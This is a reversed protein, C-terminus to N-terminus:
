WEFREDRERAERAEWEREREIAAKFSIVANAAAASIKPNADRALTDLLPLRSALISALSGSWGGPHFNQVYQNLVALPDPAERLVRIAASTWQISSTPEDEIESDNSSADKTQQWARMVKALQLFRAEPREHAWELLVDDPIKGLPCSGRERSGRFISRRGELARPGEEVLINLVSRPFIASLEVFIEGYDSSSIHHQVIGHLLRECIQNALADDAPSSLCKRVILALDHAERRRSNNFMVLALLTRAIDKEESEITKNDAVKSFLRMHFIDIAAEIGGDRKVIELLLTKLCSSSLGDCTRGWSLNRFHDIPVTEIKSAEILRACGAHDVGASIQMFIFLRHLSPNALAGDLFEDCLARNVTVLGSLFDSPFRIINDGNSPAIVTALILKWAERPKQSYRGITAAVISVRTSGSALMVQLHSEFVSLDSAIEKGIEECISDVKQRSKEYNNEDSIDIEAVDLAGWQAPLVYSAIRAELTNPQLRKELAELKEADIKRKSSEALSRAARAGAWGEPWGGDAAFRDALAILEDTLATGPALFRFQSAVMSRVSARLFNHEALDGALSFAERYWDLCEGSNKPHLGYDRKRTGFEFGYSSSFHNCELMADLGTLVLSERHIVESVAVNRLFDARQKATAHTGSLYLYFLSKFVNIAAETDNSKSEGTSLRMILTLAKEFKEPDYALSRLLRVVRNLHPQDFAVRDRTVAADIGDMVADPNVPAVNDLIVVGLDDLGELKSLRGGNGLWQGVIARAESSDHLCGIRRSFSKLFREPAGEVLYQEVRERPFDQLAEKALKHALAHPLLARWKSRRQILQRRILESVQIHLEDVSQGALSAIRPLEADDGLLTEGDFSYVLSLAKAARLLAPDEEHNQHFLRKILGSDKLDALSGGHQATEALALAIRSNGESFAAITRVEPPALDPYRRTVIKEIIESSAPELKYTDTNEPEDDSVDYEITIVSVAGAGARMRACLKRHLEAGCNDVILVCREGRHQLHRVLELPIPDPSDALDTYIALRPNLADTGIKSDFLAQVLRTKGVGSLGILRVMGKSQGLVHRLKEIGASASLGDTDKLRAGIIRVHDDTLYQENADGPSSSWDEYPRWGSLPIGVCSRVWPVLGPHQNVWTALRGRDYFDVHLGLATPEDALAGSMANRRRSLATDALSGKSSVIIYAGGNQGLKKISSRLKGGPRMETEIDGKPMDEAKVQYATQGRPVYGTISASGLDVRVDIGGDQANQHGGYTVSSPSHGARVVEQEALYGVLTRM